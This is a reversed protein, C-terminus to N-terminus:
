KEMAFCLLILLNLLVVKLNLALSTFNIEGHLSLNSRSSFIAWNKNRYFVARGQINLSSNKLLLGGENATFENFGNMEIISSSFYTASRSFTFIFTGAKVYNYVFSNLGGFALKCENAFIATGLKKAVNDAFYVNSFTVISHNMSIAGGNEQSYGDTFSCNTVEGDTHVFHLAQSKKKLFFHIDVNATNSFLLVFSQKTEAESNCYVKISSLTVASSNIFSINAVAALTVKVESNVGRLSIDWVNHLILPKNLHHEGELFWFSTNSTFYQATNNLYESLTLCPQGPCTASTSSAVYLQTTASASVAICLLALLVHCFMQSAMSLHSSKCMQKYLRPKMQKYLRSTENISHIATSIIIRRLFHKYYLNTLIVVLM